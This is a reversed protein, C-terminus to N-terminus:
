NIKCEGDAEVSNCFEYNIFKKSDCDYTVKIKKGNYYDNEDLYKDSILSNIDISFFEKEPTSDCDISNTNAEGDVVYDKAASIASKKLMEIQENEKFSGVLNSISPISIALLLGLVVIVALLEILSFGKNNM